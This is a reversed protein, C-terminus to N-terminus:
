IKGVNIIQRSWTKEQIADILCKACDAFSMFNFYVKRKVGAKYQGTASARNLGPARVITWDLRSNKISDEAIVKDLYSQKFYYRFIPTILRALFSLEKYDTQVFGSMFVFRTVDHLECAKVINYTGKSMLDAVERHISPGFCSIVMDIGKLAEELSRLDTVDGKIVKVNKNYSVKDPNRIVITVNYDAELALRLVEKGTSGTAGIIALNKM